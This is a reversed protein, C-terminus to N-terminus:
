VFCDSKLSKLSGLAGKAGSRGVSFDCTSSIVSKPVMPGPCICGSHCNPCAPRRTVVPTKEAGFRRTVPELSLEGGGLSVPRRGLSRRRRPGGHESSEGQTIWVSCAGQLAREPCGGGESLTGEESQGEAVPGKSGCDQPREDVSEAGVVLDSGLDRGWFGGHSGLGGRTRGRRVRTWGHVRGGGQVGGTWTGRM